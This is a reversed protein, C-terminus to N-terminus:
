ILFSSYINGMIMCIQIICINENSVIYSITYNFYAIAIVDYGITASAVNLTTRQYVGVEDNATSDIRNATKTTM